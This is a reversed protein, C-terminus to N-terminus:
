VKGKFVELEGQLVYATTGAVMNRIVFGIGTIVNSGSGTADYTIILPKNAILEYTQLGQTDIAINGVPLATSQAFEAIQISTNADAVIQTNLRTRSYETGTSISSSLATRAFIWWDDTGNTIELIAASAPYFSASSNARYGDLTSSTGQFYPYYLTSSVTTGDLYVPANYTGTTIDVPAFVTNASADSTIWDIFGLSQEAGTSAAMNNYQITALAITPGTVAGNAINTTQIGGTNSGSDFTSVKLGGWAFSNSSNSQRGALDNRATTSWYYTNAALDSVNISVSTNATYPAGNGLQV